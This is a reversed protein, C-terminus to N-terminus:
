SREEAKKLTIGQFQFLGFLAWQSAKMYKTDIGNQVWRLTLRLIIRKMLVNSICVAVDFHSPSSPLLKADLALGQVTVKTMTPTTTTSKAAVDLLLSPLDEAEVGWLPEM